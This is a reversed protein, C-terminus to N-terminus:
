LALRRAYSVVRGLLQTVSDSSIRRPFPEPSVDQFPTSSPFRSSLLPPRFRDLQDATVGFRHRRLSRNSNIYGSSLASRFLVLQSHSLLSSSQDECQRFIRHYCV